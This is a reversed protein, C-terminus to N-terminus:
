NTLYLFDKKKIGNKAIRSRIACGNRYSGSQQRHCNGCKGNEGNDLRPTTLDGLWRFANNRHSSSGYFIDFPVTAKHNYYPFLIIYYSQKM